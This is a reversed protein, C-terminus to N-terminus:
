KKSWVIVECESRTVNENYNKVSYGAKSLMEIFEKYDYPKSREPHKKLANYTMYGRRSKSVFKEFYLDQTDKNLESYAYNSIVLDYEEPQLKNVDHCSTMHPVTQKLREVYKAVLSLVIPEDVVTYSQIDSFQNILQCQEGYGCGIELVKYNNLNGFEAFLEHMVNLYRLTTPSIDGINGYSFKVPSGVSDAIKAKELVEESLFQSNSKKLKDFYQKGQLESVGTVIGRYAVESKFKNFTEESSVARACVELYPNVNVTTAWM